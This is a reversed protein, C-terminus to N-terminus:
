FLELLEKAKSSPEIKRGEVTWVLPRSIDALMTLNIKVVGQDKAGNNNRLQHEVEQQLRNFLQQWHINNTIM